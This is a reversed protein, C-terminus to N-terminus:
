GPPRPAPSAPEARGIAGAIDLGIMWGLVFAPGNVQSAPKTLMLMVAITGIPRSGSQWRCRDAIAQGIM